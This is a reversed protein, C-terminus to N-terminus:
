VLRLFAEELSADAVTVDVIAHRADYLSWLTADADTSHLTVRNGDVDM